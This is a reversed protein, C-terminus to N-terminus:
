DKGLTAALEASRHAAAAIAADFIARVDHSELYQLAAATTGGRSTVRERLVAPPETANHAMMGAGYATEAALRQAIEPPLGLKEGAAALMEILLFFYAPGSGSLATVADMDTERDIWVTAGVASLIKAALEKGAADVTPTAYLGTIGCGLLAPVNPMCRILPVDGLWRLLDAARVGAAVSIVLSRKAALAAAMQTAVARLQQPKVALVLVDVSQVVALNDDTLQVSWTAALAARQSDIPEAVMIRQPLVGRAILGGILGRAMNGGGIFGITQEWM